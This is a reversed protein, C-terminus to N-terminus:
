RREKHRAVVIGTARAPDSTFRACHNSADVLLLSMRPYVRFPTEIDVDSADCQTVSLRPFRSRFSALADADGSSSSLSEMGLLEDIAKLEDIELGM